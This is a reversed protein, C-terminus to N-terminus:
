KSDYDDDEYCGQCLPCFNGKERLTLCRDCLALETSPSFQSAISTLHEPTRENPPIPPPKTPAMQSSVDLWQTVNPSDCSCCRTCGM